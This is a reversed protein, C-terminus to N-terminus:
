NNSWPSMDKMNWVDKSNWDRLSDWTPIPNSTVFSTCHIYLPKPYAIVTPGVEHSLGLPFVSVLTHLHLEKRSKCLASDRVLLRKEELSRNDADFLLFSPVNSFGSYPLRVWLAAGTDRATNTMWYRVVSCPRIRVVWAPIYLLSCSWCADM